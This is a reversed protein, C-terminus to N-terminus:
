YFNSLTDPLESLCDIACDAGLDHVPVTSYGFGVAVIPIGASRATQVDVSHDGVYVARTPPVELEWACALLPRPNPKQGYGSDSAILAEIYCDLGLRQLILHALKEPKNTCIGIAFRLATLTALVEAAFPFAKTAVVPKACYSNLYHEKIKNVQEPSAKVGQIRLAEEVLVRAGNGVLKKVRQSTLPRLGNARLAANLALAIDDATDVLTGDLDFIVARSPPFCASTCEVRM